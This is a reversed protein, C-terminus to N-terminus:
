AREQGIRPMSPRGPPEVNQTLTSVEVAIRGSNNQLYAHPPDEGAEWSGGFYAVLSEMVFREDPQVEKVERFHSRDRMRKDGSMRKKNSGPNREM